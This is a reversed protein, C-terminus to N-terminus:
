NYTIGFDHSCTTTQNKTVIINDTYFKNYGVYKALLEANSPKVSIGVNDVIFKQYTAIDKFADGDTTKKSLILLYYSGTPINNFTYTGTGDVKTCFIGYDNYANIRTELGWDVYSSLDPMNLAKADHSFLYVMAGTDAVNGKYNNYLYTVNGSVTGYTQNVSVTCSASVDGISATIKTIGAGVAGVIGDYVVAISTDESTWKVKSQKSAPTVSVSIADTDGLDMTLATKDLQITTKEKSTNTAKKVTVTCTFIHNGAEAYIKAFGAKKAKVIGKQSVSAVSKNNSSWTIKKQIGTVKLKKTQGIKLTVSETNLKGKALASQTASPTFNVLIVLALFVSLFKRINKM